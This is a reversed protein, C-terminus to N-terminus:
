VDTVTRSPNTTGCVDYYDLMEMSSYRVLRRGAGQRESGTVHGPDGGERQVNHKNESASSDWTNNLVAGDLQSGDQAASPGFTVGARRGSQERGRGDRDARKGDRGSTERIVRSGQLLSSSVAPGGHEEGDDFVDPNELIADMPITADGRGFQEDNLGTTTNPTFSSDPLYTSHSSNRSHPQGSRTRGPARSLLSESVTTRVSVRKQLGRTSDGTVVHQTAAITAGDVTVPDGGHEAVVAITVNATVLQDEHETVAVIGVNQGHLAGPDKEVDDNTRLGGDVMMGIDVFNTVDGGMRVDLVEPAHHIIVNYEADSQTAPAQTVLQNDNPETFFLDHHLTGAFCAINGRQIAMSLRQFLFVRERPDSTAAICRGGLSNLLALGDANIPGLTELAIPVFCHTASLQQYKRM